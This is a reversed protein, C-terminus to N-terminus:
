HQMMTLMQRTQAPGGSASIKVRTGDDNNQAEEKTAHVSLSTARTDQTIFQTTTLGSVDTGTPNDTHLVM